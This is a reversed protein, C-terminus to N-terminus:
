EEDDTSDTTEDEDVPEGDDASSEDVDVDSGGDEDIVDEVDEEVSLEGPEAPKEQIEDSSGSTIKASSPDDALDVNTAADDVPEGAGSMSGDSSAYPDTEIETEDTEDTKDTEEEDSGVDGIPIPQSETPVTEPVRDSVASPVAEVTRKRITELSTDGGDDGLGLLRDIVYAAVVTGAAVLVLTRLQSSSDTTTADPPPDRSSSTTTDVASRVRM